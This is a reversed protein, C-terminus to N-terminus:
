IEETEANLYSSILKSGLDDYVRSLSDARTPNWHTQNLIEQAKELNQGIFDAYAQPSNQAVHGMEEGIFENIEQDKTFINSLSYIFSIGAVHQDSIIAESFPELFSFRESKPHSKHNIFLCDLEKSDMNIRIGSLIKDALADISTWDRPQTSLNSELLHINAFIDDVQSCKTNEERPPPNQKQTDGGCATFSFALFILALCMTGKRIYLTHM